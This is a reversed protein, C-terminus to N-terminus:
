PRHGGAPAADPQGQGGADAQALAGLYQEAQALRQSVGPAQGNGYLDAALRQVAMELPAADGGEPDLILRRTMRPDIADVYMKVFEGIRLRQGAGPVRTVMELLQGLQRLLLDPNAFKGSVGALVVFRANYAMPDLFGRVVQGDVVPLQAPHHRLWEWMQGFLEGLPETFREVSDAAFLNTQLSEQQVETATKAQKTKDLSSLNGMPSGVRRVAVARAVELDYDFVQPRVPMQAFELGEPLIDGPRWKFSRAIAPNGKLFPKGLYDQWILRARRNATAERQDALLKRAVGRADSLYEGRCEYMLAVFPWPRDEGTVTVTGTAPDALVDAWRWSSQAIPRQPRDARYTTRYRRWTKDEERRYHYHEYVIITGPKPRDEDLLERGEGPAQGDDTNLDEDLRWGRAEATRRFEDATMEIRHAVWDADALRRTAPPFAVDRAQVSEFDPYVAGDKSRTVLKAFHVGNQNKGDVMKELRERVNLTRKLLADFALEANSRFQVALDDLPYFSALTRASLLITMEASTLQTVADDIVPEHPDPAGPYPQFAPLGDLLRYKRAEELREYFQRCDTRAQRVSDYLESVTPNDKPM